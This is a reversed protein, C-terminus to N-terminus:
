ADPEAGFPVGAVDEFARRNWVLRSWPPEAADLSSTERPALTPQELLLGQSRLWRDDYVNDQYRYGEDPAIFVVPRGPRQQREWRAVQYAAGSTPGMFLAHRRHLERTHHFADEASVWHVEDYYHHVLNRPAISNGLGRLVRKGVPIGFLMSGFTDVGVLRIADSSRRLTEITGSTSGGSGVTGVLTFDVGVADLLQEAFVQYAERNDINDYQSPWFAKPHAELYQKVARLRLVQLNAASHSEAVSHVEGGLDQLRRRLADDIAPDSFIVFPIGHEACVIGLGLAYTGSSTEVLTSRSDLRGEAIAKEVVYKAPLLKMLRFSAAILGDEISILQPLFMADSQCALRQRPGSSRLVSRLTSPM